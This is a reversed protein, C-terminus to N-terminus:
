GNAQQVSAREGTGSTQRAPIAEHVAVVAHVVARRISGVAAMGAGDGTAVVGRHSRCHWSVRWCCGVRSSARWPLKGKLRRSAGACGGALTCRWQVKPELSVDRRCQLRGQRVRLQVLRGRGPWARRRQRARWAPLGCGARVRLGARQRVRRSRGNHRQGRTLRTEAQRLGM